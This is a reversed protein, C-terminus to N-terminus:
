LSISSSIFSITSCVLGISGISINTYGSVKMAKIEKYVEKDSTDINKIYKNNLLGSKLAEYSNDKVKKNWIGRHAILQM